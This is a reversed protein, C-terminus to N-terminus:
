REFINVVEVEMWLVSHEDEWMGTGIINVWYEPLLVKNLYVEHCLIWGKETYLENIKTVKSLAAATLM